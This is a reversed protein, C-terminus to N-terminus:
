ILYLITCQWNNDKLMKFINKLQKRLEMVEILFNVIVKIM